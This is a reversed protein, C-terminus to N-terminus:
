NKCFHWVLKAFIDFRHTVVCIWHSSLLYTRMCTSTILHYIELLHWLGRDNVHSHSISTNWSVKLQVKVLCGSLKAQKTFASMKLHYFAKTTTTAIDIEFHVTHPTFHIMTTMIMTSADGRGAKHINIYRSLVANCSFDAIDREFHATNPNFSDPSGEVIIKSFLQSNPGVLPPPTVSDWTKLLPGFRLSSPEICCTTLNSDQCGPTWHLQHRVVNSMTSFTLEDIDYNDKILPALLKSARSLSSEPHYRSVTALNCRQSFVNRSCVLLSPPSCFNVRTLQFNM